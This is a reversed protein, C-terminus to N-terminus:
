NGKQWRFSTSVITEFFGIRHYLKRAGENKEDVSLFLSHVAAEKAKEITHEILSSAVGQNRFDEHVAVDELRYFTTGEIHDWLIAGAVRDDITVYAAEMKFDGLYEDLQEVPKEWKGALSLVRAADEYHRDGKHLPQVKILSTGEEFGQVDINMEIQRSGKKWERQEATSLLLSNSENISLIVTDFQESIEGELQGFLWEFVREDHNEKTFVPGIVYTEKDGPEYLFGFFGVPYDKNEVVYLTDGYTNGWEAVEAELEELGKVRPYSLGQTEEKWSWQCLQDIFARDAAEAKRITKM